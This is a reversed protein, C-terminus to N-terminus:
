SERLSSPPTDPSIPPVLLYHPDPHSTRHAPPFDPAPGPINYHIIYHKKLTRVFFRLERDDWVPARAFSSTYSNTLIINHRFGGKPEKPSLRLSINSTNRPTARSSNLSKHPFSFILNIIDDGRRQPASFSHVSHRTGGVM